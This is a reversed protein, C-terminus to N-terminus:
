PQCKPCGEFCEDCHAPEQIKPDNAHRADYVQKAERAVDNDPHFLLKFVLDESWNVFANEALPKSYSM